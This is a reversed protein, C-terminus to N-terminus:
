SLKFIKFNLIMSNISTMSQDMIHESPLYYDSNNIVIKLFNVKQHNFISTVVQIDIGLLGSCIGTYVPIVLM